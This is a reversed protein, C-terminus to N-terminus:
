KRRKKPKKKSSIIFLIGIIILPSFVMNAYWIQMFGVQYYNLLAFVLSAIIPIIGLIIFIIGGIFEKKWALAVIGAIILTPINHIFFGGLALWSFGETFVDFSFMGIFVTFLIALIRPTWYLAKNM